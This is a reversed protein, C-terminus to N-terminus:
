KGAPKAYKMLDSNEAAVLYALAGGLPKPLEAALKVPIKTHKEIWVREAGRTAILSGSQNVGDGKPDVVLCSFVGLDPVEVDEEGVVEVTMISPQTRGGVIFSASDGVKELPLGRIYYVMSLNDQMNGAIPKPLSAMEQGDTGIMSYKCVPDPLGNDLRSDYEFEVRDKYTRSYESIRRRMLYSRGNQADVYSNVSTDVPYFANMFDNSQCNMEFVFVPRGRVVGKRKASFRISGAPLGRWKAQYRLEEGVKVFKALHIDPNSISKFLERYNVDQNLVEAVREEEIMENTSRDSAKENKVPAAASSRPEGAAGSGACLAFVLVVTWAWAM